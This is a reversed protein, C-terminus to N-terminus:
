LSSRHIHQAQAQALQLDKNRHRATAAGGPGAVLHRQRLRRDTRGDIFQLAQKGQLEEVPHAFPKLEVVVPPRQQGLGQGQQITCGADLQHRSLIHVLRLGQPDARAGGQAIMHQGPQQPGKQGLAVTLMRM